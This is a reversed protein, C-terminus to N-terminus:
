QALSRRAYAPDSTVDRAGADRLVAPLEPAGHAPRGVDALWLDRDLREDIRWTAGELEVHRRRYRLRRGETFPWLAEFLAEPMEDEAEATGEPSERVRASRTVGDSRVRRVLEPATDGPLYGEEVEEARAPPLRGPASALVYRRRSAVRAAELLAREADAVVAGLRETGADGAPDGLRAFLSELRARNRRALALIGARESRRMERRAADEEGRVLLDHARRTRGVVAEELAAGLRQALVHADNLEGLLDQLAKMHAVLRGVAPLRGDLPEVLYRLRKARIRATHAAARDEVDRVAGLAARLEELHDHVARAMAEGWPTEADSATGLLRVPRSVSALRPALDDRVRAYAEALGESISRMASEREEDLRSAVWDLARRHAPAVEPRQGKVWAAAVEADRGQGTRTQVDRLARRDRKRVARGLADRWARATSRLRRIAVRFDHLAEADHPDSLRLLAADAADLHALAVLRAAESAPRRAVDDPLLSSARAM